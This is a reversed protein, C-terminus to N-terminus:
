RHGAQRNIKLLAVARQKLVIRYTAGTVPAASVPQLATRAGLTDVFNAREDDVLYSIVTSGDSVGPLNLVVVQTGTKRYHLSALLVLIDGAPAQAAVCHIGPDAETVIPLLPMGTM